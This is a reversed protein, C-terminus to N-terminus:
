RDINMTPMSHHMSNSPVVTSGQHAQGQCRLDAKGAVSPIIGHHGAADYQQSTATTLVLMCLVVLLKIGCLVSM